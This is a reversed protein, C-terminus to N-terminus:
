GIESFRANEIGQRGAGRMCRFVCGAGEPKETTNM